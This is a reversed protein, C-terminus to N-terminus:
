AYSVNTNEPCIKIFAITKKTNLNNRQHKLKSNHDKVNLTVSDLEHM